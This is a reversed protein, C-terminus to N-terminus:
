YKLARLGPKSLRRLDALKDCADAHQRKEESSLLTADVHELVRVGRKTAKRVQAVMDAVGVRTQDGPAVAVLSGRNDTRLLLKSEVLMIDKLGSVVEALRLDFKDQECKKVFLDGRENRLSAPQPIGALTAVRDLTVSRGYTFGDARLADAVAKWAPSRSPQADM